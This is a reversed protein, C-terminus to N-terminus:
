LAFDRSALFGLITRIGSQQSQYMAREAYTTSGRAMKKSIQSDQGEIKPNFNQLKYPQLSLSLRLFSLSRFFSFFVLFEDKIRAGSELM